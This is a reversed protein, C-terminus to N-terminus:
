GKVARRLDSYSAKKALLAESAARLIEYKKLVISNAVESWKEIFSVVESPDEIRREVSDGEYYSNGSPEITLKQDLKDPESFRLVVQSKLGCIGFRISLYAEFGYGSVSFEKKQTDMSNIPALSFAGGLTNVIEAYIAEIDTVRGHITEM